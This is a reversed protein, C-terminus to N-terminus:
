KCYYLIWFQAACVKLVMSIYSIYNPEWINCFEMAIIQGRQTVHATQCQCWLKEQILRSCKLQWHVQMSYTRHWKHSKTIFTDKHVSLWIPPRIKKRKQATIKRSISVSFETWGLDTTLLPNLDTWLLWLSNDWSSLVYKSQYLHLTRHKMITCNLYNRLTVSAKANPCIRHSSRLM